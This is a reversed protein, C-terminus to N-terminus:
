RITIKKVKSWKGATYGKIARVSVYYTGPTKEIGYSTKKSTRIISKKMNKKSSIKIQYKKANKVKKWSLKKSAFKM